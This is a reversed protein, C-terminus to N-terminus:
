ARETQFDDVGLGQAFAEGEGRLSIIRGGYIEVGGPESL